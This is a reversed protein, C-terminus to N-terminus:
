LFGSSTGVEVDIGGCCWQYDKDRCRRDRTEEGDDRGGLNAHWGFDLSDINQFWIRECLRCGHVDQSTFSGAAQKRWTPVFVPQGLCCAAYTGAPCTDPFFKFENTKPKKKRNSTPNTVPPAVPAKAGDQTPCILHTEDKAHNGNPLAACLIQTQTNSEISQGSNDVGAVLVSPSGPGTVDDPPASDPKSSIIDSEANPNTPPTQGSGSDIANLALIQSSSDALIGLSYQDALTLSEQNSKDTIGNVSPLKSLADKIDSNQDQDVQNSGVTYSPPERGDRPSALIQDTEEVPNQQSSFSDDAEPAPSRRNLESDIRADISKAGPLSDVITIFNIIVPLAFVPRMTFM